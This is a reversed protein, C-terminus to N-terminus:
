CLKVDRPGTHSPSAPAQAFAIATHTTTALLPAQTWALLRSAARVQTRALLNRAREKALELDGPVNDGDDRPVFYSDQTLVRHLGRIVADSPAPPASPATSNGTDTANVDAAETSSEGTKGLKYLGEFGADPSELEFDDDGGDPIMVANASDLPSTPSLRSRSADAYPTSIAPLEVEVM